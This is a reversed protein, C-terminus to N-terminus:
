QAAEPASSAQSSVPPLFLVKRLNSDLMFLPQDSPENLRFLGSSELRELRSPTCPCSIRSVAGAQWDVIAVTGNGSNAIVARNGDTTFALASVTSIGDEPAAIPAFTPGSVMGQLLWVRDDAGAALADYSGPRFALSTINSPASITTLSGDRGFLALQNANSLVTLVFRGDDSVALAVPRSGIQIDNQSPNGARLGALLSLAGDNKYVAAATGQPSIYIASAGSIGALQTVRAPAQFRILRATTDATIAIAYEGAGDIAAEQVPFGVELPRGLLAAGPIGLIPRIAQANRDLTYGLVPVGGVSFIPAETQADAYPLALASILFAIKFSM